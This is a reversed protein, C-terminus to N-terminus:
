ADAHASASIEIGERRGIEKVAAIDYIRGEFMVRDKPNLDSVGLSWRIVFRTTISAQVQASALREGDSVDRKSAWVTAIPVWTAVEEGTGHDQATSARQLTIRRDLDGARVAM